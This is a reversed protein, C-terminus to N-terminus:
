DARFFQIDKVPILRVEDRARVAIHQRPAVEREAAAVSKLQSASLKGAQRLAQELREKCVPKLLYGIAQADFAEM